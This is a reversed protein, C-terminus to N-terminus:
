QENWGNALLAPAQSAIFARRQEYPMKGAQYALPAAAEARRKILDRKDAELGKIKELVDFDGSQLAATKAAAYDGGAAINGIQNLRVMKARAAEEERNAKAIAANRAGIQSRLEMTSGYDPTRFNGAQLIINPDLAM